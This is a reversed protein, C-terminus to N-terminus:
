LSNLSSETDGNIDSYQNRMCDWTHLDRVLRPMPIPEQVDDIWLLPTQTSKNKMFPLWTKFSFIIGM